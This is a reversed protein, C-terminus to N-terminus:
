RTNKDIRYERCTGKFSEGISELFKRIEFGHWVHLRNKIDLGETMEFGGYASWGSM